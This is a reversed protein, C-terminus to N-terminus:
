WIKFSIIAEVFSRSTNIQSIVSEYDEIEGNFLHKIFALKDNLGIHLTNNKFKDNLSKQKNSDVKNAVVPEFEPMNEFGATIEDM